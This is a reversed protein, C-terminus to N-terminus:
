KIEEKKYLCHKCLFYVVENKWDVVLDVLTCAYRGCVVDIMKMTIKGGEQSGAIAEM